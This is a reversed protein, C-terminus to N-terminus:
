NVFIILFSGPVLTFGAPNIITMNGLAPNSTFDTGDVLMQTLMTANAFYGSKGILRNDTYVFNGDGDTSINPSGFPVIIYTSSSGGSGGGSSSGPVVGSITYYGDTTGFYTWEISQLLTSENGPTAYNYIPASQTDKQDVGGQDTFIEISPNQGYLPAYLTQWNALIVHDTNFPINNSKVFNLAGSPNIVVVTGGAPPVYNPNTAGGYAGFVDVQKTKEILAGVLEFYQYVYTDPVDVFDVYSFEQTCVAWLCYIDYQLDKFTNYQPPNFYLFQSQIRQSILLIAVQGRLLANQVQAATYLNIVAM